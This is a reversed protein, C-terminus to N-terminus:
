YYHRYHRFGLNKMAPKVLRSFELHSDQESAVNLPQAIQPLGILPAVRRNRSRLSAEREVPDCPM